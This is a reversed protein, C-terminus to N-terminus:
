RKLRRVRRQIASVTMELLSEGTTDAPQQYDAASKGNGYSVERRRLFMVPTSGPDNNMGHQDQYTIQLQEWVDDDISGCAIVVVHTYSKQYERVQEALRKIEDAVLDQRVTIGITDSVVVDCDLDSNVRDVVFNGGSDLIKGGGANLRADLYEHLDDQFAAEQEHAQTPTWDGLAATVERALEEKGVIGMPM